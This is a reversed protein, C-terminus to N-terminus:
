ESMCYPLILVQQKNELSWILTYDFFLVFFLGSATYCILHATSKTWNKQAACETM